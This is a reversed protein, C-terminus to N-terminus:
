DDEAFAKLEALRKQRAEEKIARIKEKEIDILKEFTEKLITAKDSNQYKQLIELYAQKTEKDAALLKEIEINNPFEMSIVVSDDGYKLLFQKLEPNMIGLINIEEKTMHLINEYFNHEIETIEQEPFIIKSTFHGIIKQNMKSGAVKNGEYASFITVCNKEKFRTLMKDLKPAIISNDLLEWAENFVIIAPNGDLQKEMQHLLYDVLPALLVKKNYIETLDIAIIKDQWNIENEHDFIKGIGKNYINQLHNFLNITENRNFIQILEKLSNIESNIVEPIIQNILNIEEQPPPNKGISAINILFDTLFSQDQTTKLSKIPNLTLQKSIINENPILKYYKGGIINLFCKATEQFDFYFVKPKFKQSQAILFNLLINKQLGIDGLIMSHGETGDHFSFFYPTNLITHLATVAPGWHNELLKGAPFNYLAAFGAVEDLDITKQRRIFAFNAPLQSWFCHEAFINERVVAIGLESFREIILEIDNELEKKTHGIIMFTTQIEGYDTPLGKKEEVISELDLISKLEHDQSVNLIYDQYKYNELDKGHQIFDFSQTIIFEFPLQLINDLQDNIIESYEKISLMTAYNKNNKGLVEISYDGFAIHHSLMKESIDDFTIPYREEYLNIIKGFLRMPESYIVGNWERLGLLKAGYEKTDNIIQNTLYTLKEHSESLYKSHLKKTSSYSLSRFLSEYNSISTDLGEIIISIYLENVYQDDWKNQDIWTQNIYGCFAEDFDGDPVINKKRRITTFWMAFGNEKVHDLISKRIAERLSIVETSVSEHFGSIRIIQLLEGDKTLITNPDYHCVYPIFDQDPIKVEISSSVKKKKQKRVTM